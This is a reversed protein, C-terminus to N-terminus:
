PDFPVSRLQGVRPGTGVRAGSEEPLFLLENGTADMVLCAGRSGTHAQVAKLPPLPGVPFGHRSRGLSSKRHPSFDPRSGLPPTSVQWTSARPSPTEAPWLCPFLGPCTDQMSRFSLGGCCHGRWVPAVLSLPGSQTGAAWGEGLATSNGYGSGQLLWLVSLSSQVVTSM